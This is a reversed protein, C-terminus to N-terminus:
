NTNIGSTKWADGKCSHGDCPEVWAGFLYVLILGVAIWRPKITM